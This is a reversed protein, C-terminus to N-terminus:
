KDAASIHPNGELCYDFDTIVWQVEKNESRQAKTNFGLWSKFIRKLSSFSVQYKDM